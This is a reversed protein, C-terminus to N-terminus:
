GHEDSTLLIDACKSTRKWLYVAEELLLLTVIALRRMCACESVTSNGSSTDILNCNHLQLQLQVQLHVQLQVQARLYHLQTIASYNFHEKDL